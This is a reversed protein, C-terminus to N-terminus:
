NLVSPQEFIGLAAHQKRSDRMPGAIGPNPVDIDVSTVKAAEQRERAQLDDNGDQDDRQRTSLVKGSRLLSVHECVRLTQVDAGDKVSELCNELDASTDHRALIQHLNRM